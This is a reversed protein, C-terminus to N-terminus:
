RRVFAFRILIKDIEDQDLKSIASATFSKIRQIKDKGIANFLEFIKLTREKKKKLANDSVTDPLQKRVKNNVLVQATRNPNDKKYRNFCDDLAKRFNFYSKLVDQNVNETREEMKIITDFLIFFNGTSGKIVEQDQPMESSLEKIMKKLKPSDNRNDLKKAKKNPSVELFLPDNSHKKQSDNRLLLSDNFLSPSIDILDNDNLNEPSKLVALKVKKKCDPRLCSLSIKISREICDRHYTHENSLITLPALTELYSINSM